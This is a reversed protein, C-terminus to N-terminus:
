QQVYFTIDLRRDLRKQISTVWVGLCLAFCYEGNVSVTFVTAAIGHTLM